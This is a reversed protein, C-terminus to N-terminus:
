AEGENVGEHESDAAMYADVMEAHLSCFSYARLYYTGHSLVCMLAWAPANVCEDDYCEAPFYSAWPTWEKHMTITIRAEAM